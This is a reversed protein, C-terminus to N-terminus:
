LRTLLLLLCVDNHAFVLQEQVKTKSGYMTELQRRYQEVTSRFFNWSTGCVFAHELWHSSSQSAVSSRRRRRMSDLRKTICEARDLWKDWSRWVFPGGLREEALLEVGDHLERMRKAIQKSTDPERLEQPRLPRAHLYEEFRGNRFTGLLRPGIQKRALRKLIRLEADRDILHEM